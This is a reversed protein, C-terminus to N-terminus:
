IAFLSRLPFSALYKALMQCYIQGFIPCINQSSNWVITLMQGVILEPLNTTSEVHFKEWFKVCMNIKSRQLLAYSKYIESISCFSYVEWRCFDVEICELVLWGFMTVFTLTSCAFFFSTCKRRHSRLRRFRATGVSGAVSFRVDLWPSSSGSQFAALM